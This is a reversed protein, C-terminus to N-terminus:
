GGNKVEEAAQKVINPWEAIAGEVFYNGEQNYVRGLSDPGILGYNMRRAYKAQFGLWLDEKATIDATVLGVNNGAFPGDAMNPMGEKSALLSRALNGTQFPLRGGDPRTKIMEEALLEISRAYVADLREETQKVWKDVVDSFSM